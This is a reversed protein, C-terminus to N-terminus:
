SVGSRGSPGDIADSRRSVVRPMSRQRSLLEAHALELIGELRSLDGAGARVRRVSAHSPSRLSHRM